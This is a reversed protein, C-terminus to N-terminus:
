KCRVHDVDTEILFVPASAGIDGQGFKGVIVAQSGDRCLIRGNVFVWIDIHCPLNSDRIFFQSEDNEKKYTFDSVTGTASVMTGLLGGCSNQARAPAAGAILIVFLVIFLGRMDLGQPPAAM